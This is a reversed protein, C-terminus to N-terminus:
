NRAPRTESSKVIINFARRLERDRHKTRHRDSHSHRRRKSQWLYWSLSVLSFATLKLRPVSCHRVCRRRKELRARESM